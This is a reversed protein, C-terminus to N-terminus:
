NETDNEKTEEATQIQQPSQHEMVDHPKSPEEGIDYLPSVRMQGNRRDFFIDCEGFENIFTIERRCFNGKKFKCNERKCVVTSMVM